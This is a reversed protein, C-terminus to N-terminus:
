GLGFHELARRAVPEGHEQVFHGADEIRMPEPCGRIQSRLEDMVPPGLVADRMGIAMFTAGNWDKSWFQRARKGLDVGEMDPEVPVLQPFRRVGAKYRNDPFPAEYAVSDFHNLSGPENIAILAGTPIEPVIAAYAKWRAFGDSLPEGIPIATNMALLRTFREPMNMPLTLGLIGGWDQCVLTIRRLDLYEVFSKLTQRHFGFTYVADEVPKDSRGFGFFDPAVVRHGADTFVPIMKRYLYSWTPEGHLCLFVTEADVPGEDVYALRLSEFGPLEDVYQPEYPFGPLVGFREDPTRLADIKVTLKAEKTAPSSL